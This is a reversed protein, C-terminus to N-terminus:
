AGHGRMREQDLMERLKDRYTKSLPLADGSTLIVEMGTFDVHDIM